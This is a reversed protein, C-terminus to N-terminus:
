TKHFKELFLNVLKGKVVAIAWKTQYSTTKANNKGALRDLETSDVPNHRLLNNENEFDHLSDAKAAELLTVVNEVEKKEEETFNAFINDNEVSINDIIDFTVVTEDEANAM